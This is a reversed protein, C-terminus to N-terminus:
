TDGEATQHDNREATTRELFQDFPIIQDFQPLLSHDHTVMILTAGSRSTETRLLRVIREANVPDLNGTPEDALVVQPSLLLARCIAVRQREGQSLRTVSRRWFSSMEVSSLLLSARERLTKTVTVSPHIRCPLLVNDLVNLYDILQFDQFVQGVHQLRFLRRENDNLRHVDTNGVRIEGGSGPLIGAILNLLTTKGSGSPGVIVAARGSELTLQPIRLRFTGDGYTFTLQNISIM